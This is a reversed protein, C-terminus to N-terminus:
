IIPCGNGAIKGASTLPPAFDIRGYQVHRLTRATVFREDSRLGAAMHPEYEDAPAGNPTWHDGCLSTEM